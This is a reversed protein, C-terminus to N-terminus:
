IKCCQRRTASLANVQCCASGCLTKQWAQACDTNAHRLGNLGMFVLAFTRLLSGPTSGHLTRLINEPLCQVHAYLSQSSIELFSTATVLEHCRPVWKVSFDYWERRGVNIKHAIRQRFRSRSVALFAWMPAHSTIWM